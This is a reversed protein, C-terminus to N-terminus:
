HYITFDIGLKKLYQKLHILVKLVKSPLILLFKTKLPIKLDIQKLLEKSKSYERAIRYKIAYELRYIDLFKKLNKHEIEQARFKKFDILKKHLISTKSLSKLIESRYICTIKNNIVVKNKLAIRIWLDLDQGSSISSDFMDHNLLVSKPIMLASTQAVRHIFSAEFFNPIIGRFNDPISNSFSTKKFIEESIKVNYRNCYMGNGPYDYILRKLEELHNPLWIDDADLFVIYKSKSNKIGKNRATSVGLNKQNIIKIRSDSFEKVLNLSDDTSGDNIILIEFDNFSQNLASKLTSKIYNEKNYLPIIVSFYPM